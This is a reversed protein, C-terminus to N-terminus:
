EDIEELKMICDIIIRDAEKDDKEKYIKWSTALSIMEEDTIIGTIDYLKDFLKYCFHNYIPIYMITGMHNFRNDLIVSFWYCYGNLFLDTIEGPHYKKFGEIFDEVESKNIKFM